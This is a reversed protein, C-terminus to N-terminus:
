RGVDTAEAGEGGVQIGDSAEPPLATDGGYGQFRGADVPYGEVVQQLALAEGHEPDIGPLHWAGRVAGLGVQAITLPDL